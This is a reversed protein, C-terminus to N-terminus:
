PVPCVFDAIESAVAQLAERMAARNSLGSAASVAVLADGTLIPQLVLAEAFARIGAARLGVIAKAEERASALLETVRPGILEDIAKPTWNGGWARRSVPPFEPDLGSEIRSILMETAKHVDHASGATAVGCLIEEAALGGMAVVAGLRLDRDTAAQGEAGTRTRGTRQSIGLSVSTVEIGLALAVAVHGAEHIAVTLRDIAPEASEAEIRGARRVAALLDDDTIEPLGTRALALGVADEVAGRVEAPSWDRALEALREYDSPADGLWPAALRDFLAVREAHTPLSFTIVVSGLRGPRVLAKDIEFLHRTTTGIVVPGRDAQVPALGDLAELLAFLRARSARDSDRREVGIVDIESLFVVSRPQGALYAFTSRIQEPDLQETPLDYVPVSGLQGVIWRSTLSKGTGPPGIFLMSRVPPLAVASNPGAEHRLRGVVSECHTLVHGIGVIDSTPVPALEVRHQELWTSPDTTLQAM